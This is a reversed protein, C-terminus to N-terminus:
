SNSANASMISARFQVRSLRSMLIELVRGNGPWEFKARHNRSRTFIFFIFFRGGGACSFNLAIFLPINYLLRRPLGAIYESLSENERYTRSSRDHKRFGGYSVLRVPSLPFGHSVVASLCCGALGSGLIGPESDGGGAGNM